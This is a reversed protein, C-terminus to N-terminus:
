TGASTSYGVRGFLHAVVGRMSNPNQRKEDGRILNEQSYEILQISLIKRKCEKMIMVERNMM